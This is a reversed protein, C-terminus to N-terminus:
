RRESNECFKLLSKTHSEILGDSIDERKVFALIAAIERVAQFAISDPFELKSLSDAMSEILLRRHEFRRRRGGTKEIERELQKELFAVEEEITSSRMELSWVRSPVSQAANAFRTRSEDFTRKVTACASQTLSLSSEANSLEQKLKDSSEVL